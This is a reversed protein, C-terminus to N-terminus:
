FSLFLCRGKVHKRREINALKKSWSKWKPKKSTL